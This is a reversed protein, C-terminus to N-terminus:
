EQPESDKKDSSNNFVGDPLFKFPKGGTKIDTETKDKYISRFANKLYFIAGTAGVEGLRNVWADEIHARVKRITNPYRKTYEYFQTRGIDLAVCIGAINPLRQKDWCNSLYRAIKDEFEEETPIKLTGKPRAM